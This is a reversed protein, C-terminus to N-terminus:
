PSIDSLVPVPEDLLAWYQRDLLDHVLEVQVEPPIALEPEDRAQPPAARMQEVTQIETLPQGVWDGLAEALLARGREARAASSVGLVVVRPLLEVNGLVVRGDEMTVNWFM